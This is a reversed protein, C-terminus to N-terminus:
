DVDITVRLADIEVDDLYVRVEIDKNTSTEFFFRGNESPEIVLDSGDQIEVKVEVRGILKSNLDLKGYYRGTRIEYPEVDWAIFDELIKDIEKEADEVKELLEKYKDFVTGSKINEADLAAKLMDVATRAKEVINVDEETLDDLDDPLKDVAAIARDLARQLPMPKYMDEIISKDVSYLYVHGMYLSINLGELKWLPMTQRFEGFKDVNVTVNGLKLKLKTNGKFMSLDFDNKYKQAVEVTGVIRGVNPSETPLLKLEVISIAKKLDELDLDGNLGVKAMTKNMAPNMAKNKTSNPNAAFSMGSSFILLVAVLAALGRNLAKM